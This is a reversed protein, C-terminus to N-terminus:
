PTDRDTSPKGRANNRRNSILEKRDLSSQRGYIAVAVSPAHDQLLVDMWSQKSVRGITGPSLHAPVRGSQPVGSCDM